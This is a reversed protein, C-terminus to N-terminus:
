IKNSWLFFVIHYFHDQHTKFKRSRNAISEHASLIEKNRLWCTDLNWQVRHTNCNDGGRRFRGWYGGRYRRPRSPDSSQLSSYGTWCRTNSVIWLYRWQEEENAPTRLQHKCNRCIHQVHLNWCHYSHLHRFCLPCLGTLSKGIWIGM